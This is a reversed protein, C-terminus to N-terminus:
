CGCGPSCNGRDIIQKEVGSEESLIDVHAKAKDYIFKSIDIIASIEKKSIELKNALNLYEEFLTTSNITYSVALGILIDQRNDCEVLLDIERDKSVNVRNLASSIMAGLAINCIKEIKKIANHIDNDSMGKSKCKNIHYKTCPQCGAAISVGLNVIQTEKETLTSRKM